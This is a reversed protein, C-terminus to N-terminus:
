LLEQNGISKGDFLINYKTGLDGRWGVVQVDSDKMMQIGYRISDKWRTPTSELLNRFTVVRTIGFKIIARSCEACPSWTVYLWLGDTPLKNELAKYIVNREAHETCFNKSEQATAYAKSSLKESVCNWGTLVVGGGRIVLVSGVQTNTDTSHRAVAFSDQLYMRDIWWNETDEELLNVIDNDMLLSEGILQM